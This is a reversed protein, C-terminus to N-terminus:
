FAGFGIPAGVGTPGDFGLGAACLYAVSCSGDAGSTVDYLSASGLASYLHGIVTAQNGAGARAIM